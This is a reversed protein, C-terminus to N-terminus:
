DLLERLEMFAKDREKVGSKKIAKRLIDDWKKSSIKERVEELVELISIDNQTNFIESQDYRFLSFLKDIYFGPTEGETDQQRKQALADRKHVRKVEREIREIETRKMKFSYSEKISFIEADKGKFLDFM